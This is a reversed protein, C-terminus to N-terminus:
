MAENEAVLKLYHRCVISESNGAQLSTAGVSKFKAVHFTIFTYCLVDHGLAFEKRIAKVRKDFNPMVIPAKKKLCHPPKLFCM